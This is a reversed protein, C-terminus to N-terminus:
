PHLKSSPMPDPLSLSLLLYIALGKQIDNVIKTVNFSAPIMNGFMSQRELSSANISDVIALKNKPSAWIQSLDICGRAFADNSPRVPRGTSPTLLFLGQQDTSRAMAPRHYYQLAKRAKVTQLAISGAPDLGVAPISGQIKSILM